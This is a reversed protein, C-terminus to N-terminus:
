VGKPDYEVHIHENDENWDELIVDWEAGLAERISIALPQVMERAMVGKTRCDFALGKYHRSSTSHQSDNCSTIVLEAGTREYQNQVVVMGCVTMPQLDTLKVGGKLKM